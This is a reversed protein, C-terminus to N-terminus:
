RCLLAHFPYSLKLNKRRQRGGKETKERKEGKERKGGKEGKERRM